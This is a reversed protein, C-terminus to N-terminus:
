KLIWPAGNKYAYKFCNIHGYKVANACTNEDFQAGNKHAYRLCKIHGNIAATSCVTKGLICGNKHAYQLCQIHGNKAAYNCISSDWPCGHEHAYQLCEIHGNEAAEICTSIDMECGNEYAYQLCEIRGYKAVYACTFENWMYGNEHAYKFCKLHEDPDTSHTGDYGSDFASGGYKHTGNEHAYKLCSLHGYIAANTCDESRWECGNEHAYQLCNLHGNVAANRCTEIGWDCGNEHMYKLCELHGNKAACDTATSGWCFGKTHMYKLYNISNLEACKIIGDDFLTGDVKQKRLELSLNHTMFIPLTYHRKNNKTLTYKKGPITREIIINVINNSPVMLFELLTITANLNKPEIEKNNFNQIVEQTVYTPLPTNKINDWNNNNDTFQNILKANLLEVNHIHNINM